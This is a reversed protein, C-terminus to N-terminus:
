YQVKLDILLTEFSSLKEKMKQRVIELHRDIISPKDTCLIHMLYLRCASLSCSGYVVASAHLRGEWTLLNWFIKCKPSFMRKRERTEHHWFHIHNYFIILVQFFFIKWYIHLIYSIIKLAFKEEFLKASIKNVANNWM